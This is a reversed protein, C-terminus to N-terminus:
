QADQFIKNVQSMLRRASKDAGWGFNHSWYRWEGGLASPQINRINPLSDRLDYLHPNSRVHIAAAVTRPFDPTAQLGLGIHRGIFKGLVVEYDRIVVFHHGAAGVLEAIYGLAVLDRLLRQPGFPPNM